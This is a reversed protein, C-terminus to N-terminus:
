AAGRGGSPASTRSDGRRMSACSGSTTMEEDNWVKTLVDVVDDTGAHELVVAAPAYADGSLSWASGLPLGGAWPAVEWDPAPPRSGGAPRASPSRTRRCATETHWCDPMPAPSPQRREKNVLLERHAARGCAGSGGVRQKAVAQGPIVVAGVRMPCKGSPMTRSRTRFHRPPRGREKGILDLDSCGYHDGCGRKGVSAARRRSRTLLGLGIGCALPAARQPHDERVLRWKGLRLRGTREDASSRDGLRGAAPRRSTRTDASAAGTAAPPSPDM